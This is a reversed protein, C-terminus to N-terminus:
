IRDGLNKIEDELEEAYMILDLMDKCVFMRQPCHVGSMSLACTNIQEKLFKIGEKEKLM